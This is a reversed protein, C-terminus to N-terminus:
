RAPRLLWYLQFENDYRQSYTTLRGRRAVDFRGFFFERYKEPDRYRTIEIVSRYDEPNEVRGEIASHYCSERVFFHGGPKLWCVINDLFHPVEDDALYALLWNTFILDFSDEPFDLQRIDACVFEANERGDNAKRNEEVFKEVFDVAVVRYATEVFHRTFRGIGAGLELVSRGSFAPLIDLIEQRDEREVEGADASANLLMSTLTPKASLRSWRERMQLDSRFSKRAVAGDRERARM